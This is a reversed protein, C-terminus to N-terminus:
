QQIVLCDYEYIGIVLIKKNEVKPDIIVNRIADILGLYAERKEQYIRSELSKKNSLWIEVVKTALSGIGLGGILPLLWEM